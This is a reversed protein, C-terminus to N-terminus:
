REVPETVCRTMMMNDTLDQVEADSAGEEMAGALATGDLAAQPAFAYADFVVSQSHLAIGHELDRPRPKLVDLAAARARQITENASIKAALREPTEGAVDMRPPEAEAGLVP